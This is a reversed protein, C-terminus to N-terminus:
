KLAMGIVVALAVLVAVGWHLFSLRPPNDHESWLVQKPLGEWPQQPPHSPNELSARPSM